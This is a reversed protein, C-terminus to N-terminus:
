SPSVDSQNAHHTAVLELALRLHDQLEARKLQQAVSRRM